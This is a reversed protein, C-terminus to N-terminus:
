IILKEALKKGEDTLTYLFAEGMVFVTRRERKAYGLKVLLDLQDFEKTVLSFYGNGNMKGALAVLRISDLVSSVTEENAYHEVM